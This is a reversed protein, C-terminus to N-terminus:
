CKKTLVKRNGNELYTLFSEKKREEKKKRKKEEEAVPDTKLWQFHFHCTTNM